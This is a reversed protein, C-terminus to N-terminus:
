RNWVRVGVQDIWQYFDTNQHNFVFTEINSLFVHNQDIIYKYNIMYVTGIKSVRCFFLNKAPSRQYDWQYWFVLTVLPNTRGMWSQGLLYLDGLKGSMERLVWSVTMMRLLSARAGHGSFPRRWSRQAEVPIRQPRQSWPAVLPQINQNLCPKTGLPIGM